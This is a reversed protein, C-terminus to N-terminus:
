RRELMKKFEVRVLFGRLWRQLTTMIKTPCKDQMDELRALIGARFFVEPFSM